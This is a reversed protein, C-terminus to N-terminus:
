MSSATVLIVVLILTVFGRSLMQQALVGEMCSNYFLANNHRGRKPATKPHMYNDAPNQCQEVTAESTTNCCSRPVLINKNMQSLYWHSSKYMGWGSRQLGCCELKQQYKDWLDTVEPYDVHGYRNILISELSQEMDVRSFALLISGCILLLCLVVLCGFYIKLHNSKQGASVCINGLLFIAVIAVTLAGVALMCYGVVQCSVLNDTITGVLKDPTSSYSDVVMWIGLGALLFGFLLIWFTVFILFIWVGNNQM